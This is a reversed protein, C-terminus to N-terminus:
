RVVLHAAEVEGAPGEFSLVYMGPPSSRPALLPVAEAVARGSRWARPPRRAYLPLIPTRYVGRGEPDRLLAHLRPSEGAGEGAAWLVVVEFPRGRTALPIRVVGLLDVGGGVGRREFAPLPRDDGEPAEASLRWAGGRPVLAALGGVETDIWTVYVPGAAGLRTSALPGTEPSATGDARITRIGGGSGRDSPEAYWLDLGSGRGEVVQLYRVVTFVPWHAYLRAGAPLGEALAVGLDRALSTPPDAPRVLGATFSSALVAAALGARGAPGLFFREAAARAGVAVVLALPPLAPLVFAAADRAAYTSAHLIPVLAAAGLLPGVGPRRLPSRAPPGLLAAGVLPVGVLWLDTSLRLLLGLLRGPVEPPPVALVWARFRGGAIVDALGGISDVPPWQLIVPGSLGRALLVLFAALGLVLGLAARGTARSTTVGSLRMHWAFFPLLLLTSTHAACALGLLLGRLGPPWGGIAAALAAALLAHHLAYVEVGGAAECFSPALGYVLAGVAGAWASGSLATGAASIAAVAAGGAAASLLRGALVPDTATCLLRGLLLHLPYGPAHVPALLRMGAAIEAGDGWPLHTAGAAYWAACLLGLLPPLAGRAARAPDAEVRAVLAALREIVALVALGYIDAARDLLRVTTGVPRRIPVPSM